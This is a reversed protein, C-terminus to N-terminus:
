TTKLPYDHGVLFQGDDPSRTTRLALTAGFTWRTGLSLRPVLPLGPFTAGCTRLPRGTTRRDPRLSRLTRRATLTGPTEVALAALDAWASFTPSRALAAWLPRPAVLAVRSRLSFGTGDSWLTPRSRCTRLAFAPLAAFVALLSSLAVLTLASLGAGLAVGTGGPRGARLTLATLHPRPASGTPHTWATGRTHRHAM